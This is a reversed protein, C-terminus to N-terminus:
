SSTIVVKGSAHGEELYRMAQRAESLRYMRDIVPMVKGDEVLEKLMVLDAQSCKTLFPRLRQRVFPSLLRAQYARGMGNIWRGATGGIVVLTGTPGLAKRCDALSRDALDIILDYAHTRNAFDDKGYDIVDDAGLSRVLAINAESCVATVHAGFAKAIQVAFTGVGGSAGNILVKQGPRIQGSDRLAQLATLGALPIAAAQEFTVNTPKLALVNDSVCAYEACAGTDIPAPRDPRHGSRTRGFVDDGPRFRTVNRGVAEVRGAIDAGIVIPRKPKRLGLVLRVMYPVGSLFHWDGPNISAAHVRVLVEGDTPMPKDVQWLQLVDPSGYKDFVFAKMTTARQPEHRIPTAPESTSTHESLVTQETTSGM